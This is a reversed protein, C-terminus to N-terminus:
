IRLTTVGAAVPDGITYVKHGEPVAAGDFWMGTFTVTIVRKGGNDQQFSLADRTRSARWLFVAHKPPAPKWSPTTEAGAINYAFTGDAAHEFDPVIMVSTEAAPQQRSHGGHALGLPHTSAYAEVNSFVIPATITVSGLMVQRQHVVGGTQETTLDNYQFDENFSVEGEISGLAKMGGVTFPNGTYVQAKGIAAVANALTPRTVPM